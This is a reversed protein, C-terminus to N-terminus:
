RWLCFLWSVGSCRKTALWEFAAAREVGSARIIIEATFEIWFVMSWTNNRNDLVRHSETARENYSLVRGSCRLRRRRRGVEFM